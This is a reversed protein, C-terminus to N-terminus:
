IVVTKRAFYDRFIRVLQLDEFNEKGGTEVMDCGVEEVGMPVM